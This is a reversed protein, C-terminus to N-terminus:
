MCPRDQPIALLSHHLMVDSYDRKTHHTKRFAMCHLHPLKEYKWRCGSTCAHLVPGIYEQMYRHFGVSEVCHRWDKMLAAHRNQHSSDPTVVLLLGHPQLVRHANVCCTLRQVTCPLYSLLLSFVVVDYYDGVLQNTNNMRQEELVIESSSAPLCQETGIPVLGNDKQVEVGSEPVIRVNLFDCELVSQFAVLTTVQVLTLLANVSVM